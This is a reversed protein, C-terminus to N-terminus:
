PKRQPREEQPTPPVGRRCPPPEVQGTLNTPASQVPPGCIECCWSLPHGYMARRQRKRSTHSFALTAERDQEQQFSFASPKERSAM